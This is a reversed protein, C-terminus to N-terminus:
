GVGPYRAFWVHSHGQINWRQYEAALVSSGEADPREDSQVIASCTSGSPSGRRGIRASVAIDTNTVANITTSCPFYTTILDHFIYVKVLFLHEKEDSGLISLRKPKRISSMVLLRQDFRQITAVQTPPSAGTYQGPIDIFENPYDLARFGSLRTSNQNYYFTITLRQAVM